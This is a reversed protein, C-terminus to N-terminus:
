VRRDYYRQWSRCDTAVTLCCLTKTEYSCYALNLMCINIALHVSDKWNICNYNTSLKYCKLPLHMYYICKVLAYLIDNLIHISYINYTFTILYVARYMSVLCVRHWLYPSTYLWAVPNGSFVVLHWWVVRRKLATYGVRLRCSSLTMHSNCIVNRYEAQNNRYSYNFPWWFAIRSVGKNAYCHNTTIHLYYFRRYLIQINPRDYITNNGLPQDLRCCYRCQVFFMIYLDSLVIIAIFAILM